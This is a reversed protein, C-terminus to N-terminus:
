QSGSDCLIIAPEYCAAAHEGGESKQRWRSVNKEFDFSIDQWGRDTDTLTKGVAGM